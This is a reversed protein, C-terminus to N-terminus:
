LGNDTGSGLGPSGDMVGGTIVRGLYTLAPFLRRQGLCPARGAVQRGRDVAWMLTALGGAPTRRAAM